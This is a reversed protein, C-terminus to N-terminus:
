SGSMNGVLLMTKVNYTHLTTLGWVTKVTM